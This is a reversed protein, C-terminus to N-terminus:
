FEPDHFGLYDLEFTETDEKWIQLLTDEAFGILTDMDWTQVMRRSLEERAEPTNNPINSM